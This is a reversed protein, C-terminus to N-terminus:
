ARRGGNKETTEIKQGYARRTWRGEVPLMM